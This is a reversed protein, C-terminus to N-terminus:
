QVLNVWFHDILADLLDIEALSAVQPFYQNLKFIRRLFAALHNLWSSHTVTPALPRSRWRLPKPIRLVAEWTKVSCTHRMLDIHASPHGSLSGM